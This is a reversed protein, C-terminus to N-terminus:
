SPTICWFVQIRQTKTVVQCSQTTIFSRVSEFYVTVQLSTFQYKWSVLAILQQFMCHLLTAGKGTSGLKLWSVKFVYTHHQELSTVNCPNNRQCDFEQWGEGNSRRPIIGTTGYCDPALTEDGASALVRRYSVFYKTNQHGGDFGPEWLLTVYSHGVETAKISSPHEPPGKPQLYIGTRITGLSNAVRCTYQGYDAERINSIKLISTYIDGNEATMNLEYHGENSTLLPATNTGYNWQFEPRPYAQVKCVVEATERLDSAVKNYQHLM